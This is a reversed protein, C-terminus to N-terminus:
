YESRCVASRPGTGNILHCRATASNACPNYGGYSNNASWDCTQNGTSVNYLYIHVDAPVSLEIANSYHYRGASVAPTGDSSLTCGNCYYDFAASAGTAFIGGVLALGVILLLKTRTVFRDIMVQVGGVNNTIM